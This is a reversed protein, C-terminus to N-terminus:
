SGVADRGPELGNETLYRLAREVTVIKRKLDKLGPASEDSFEDMREHQRRVEMEIQALVSWVAPDPELGQLQRLITAALRREVIAELTEATTGQGALGFAIGGGGASVLTGATLLGGIMGGPGFTALASTIAAAGALGPAAAIALGGTAVVIAAAGVSLAGWKIWNGGRGPVLVSRARKAAEFIDTGYQTGLGMEACLEKMAELWKERPLDIEFPRLVNEAALVTLLVVAEDKDLYRGPHPETLPAVPDSLDVALRAVAAPLARGESADRTIIDDVADAQVRRLAGTFRDLEDGKLGRRMLHAYRLAMLAMSEAPDLPIDVGQETKAVETSLSGFLAFGIATAVPESALYQDAGHAKTPVKTTAIRFDVMWPFASSLGRNAAVPDYANWFNVWWALDVPPDKLADKLKDVDFAGNALPSGITVMGVIEIAAPLRRLLDAAIVSGLSHGVLVIRGSDPLAALVRNLVQARIQPNSLYNRAQKFPYTSVAASVAGDLLVVNHGPEHRGLRYEIAGMRAEFARRNVKAADRTPAKTTFEPLAEKVDWDKLAHAYKPAVVHSSELGPYGLRVLASSLTTKWNDDHDGDGVGHLFVLTTDTTVNPETTM